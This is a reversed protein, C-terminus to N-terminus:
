GRPLGLMADIERAVLLLEDFIRDVDKKIEVITRELNGCRLVYRRGRRRVLGMSVLRNIHYVATTRKMEGKLERSSLGEERKTAELLEKLIRVYEPALRSPVGLSELLWLLRDEM